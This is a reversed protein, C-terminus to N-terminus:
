GWVGSVVQFTVESFLLTSDGSRTEKSRLLAEYFATMGLSISSSESTEFYDPPIVADRFIKLRNVSMENM